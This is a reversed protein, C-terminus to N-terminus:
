KTLAEYTALAKENTDIGNKKMYAVADLMDNLTAEGTNGLIDRTLKRFAIEEIAKQIM